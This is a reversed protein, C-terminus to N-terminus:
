LGWSRQLVNGAPVRTPTLAGHKRNAAALTVGTGATFSKAHQRTVIEDGEGLEAGQLM